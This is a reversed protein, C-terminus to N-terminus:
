PVAPSLPVTFAWPGEVTRVPVYVERKPDPREWTMALVTVSLALADPALTPFCRYAPRWQWDNREGEGSAGGFLV